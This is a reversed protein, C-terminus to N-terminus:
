SHMLMMDRLALAVDECKDTVMELYEYVGQMKLIRLVDGERFLAALEDNLLMDAESELWDVRMLRKDIEEKNIRRISVFILEIEDVSERVLEAFRVMGRTPEEIEYLFIRNIVAYCLDLVDDYLSALKAIDERDIPTIFSESIKEYIERVIRDGAHEIDKLEQRRYELNDFRRIAEELKRAGVLVNASEKELLDYFVKDQPIIWEKLGM